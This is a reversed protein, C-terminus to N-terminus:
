NDLGLNVFKDHGGIPPSNSWIKTNHAHQGRFITARTPCCLPDSLRYNKFTLGQRQIQQQVTPMRNLLGADLDDAIVFVVNPPSDSMQARTKAQAGLTVAVGIAAVAVGFLVFLIAFAPAESVIGRSGDARERRLPTKAQL